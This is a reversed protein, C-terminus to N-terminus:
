SQGVRKGFRPDVAMQAYLTALMQEATVQESDFLLPFQQQAFAFFETQREPPVELLAALSALYEGGGAAMDQKLRAFNAIAFESARQKNDLSKESSSGGTSRSSSSPDTVVTCAVLVLGCAVFTIGRSLKHATNIM